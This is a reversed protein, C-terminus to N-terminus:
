IKLSIVLWILVLATWKVQIRVLFLEEDIHENEVM